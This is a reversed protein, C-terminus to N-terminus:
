WESRVVKEEEREGEELYKHDAVRTRSKWNGQYEVDSECVCAARM